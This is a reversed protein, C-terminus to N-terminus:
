SNQVLSTAASQGKDNQADSSLKASLARQARKGFEGALILREVVPRAQAILEPHEPLYVEAWVSIERASYHAPKLGLKQMEAKTAKRAQIQALIAAATTVRITMGIAVNTQEILCVGIM